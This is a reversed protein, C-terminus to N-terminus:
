KTVETIIPITFTETSIVRGASSFVVDCVLRDIPWNSTDPDAPTLVFYGPSKVQDAKTVILETVLEKSSKRIQSKIGVDTIDVGTKNKTFAATLSWTDGRKFPPLTVM